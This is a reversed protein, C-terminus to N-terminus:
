QLRAAEAIVGMIWAGNVWYEPTAFFPRGAATQKEHLRDMAELLTYTPRNAQLWAASAGAAVDATPRCSIRFPLSRTGCHSGVDSVCPFYRNAYPVEEPHRSQGILDRSGSLAITHGPSLSDHTILLRSAIDGNSGEASEAWFRARGNGSDLTDFVVEPPAAIRM